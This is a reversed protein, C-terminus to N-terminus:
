PRRGTRYESVTMPVECGNETRYVAMFAVAPPLETLKRPRIPGGHILSRQGALTAAVPPCDRAPQSNFQTTAPPIAVPEFRASGAPAATAGIALALMTVVVRM